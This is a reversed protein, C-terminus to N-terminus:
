SSSHLTKGWDWKKALTCICVMILHSAWRDPALLELPEPFELSMMQTTLVNTKHLHPWLSWADGPELCFPKPSVSYGQTMSRDDWFNWLDGPHSWKVSTQRVLRWPSVWLCTVLLIFFIWHSLHWFTPPPASLRRAGSSCRWITNGSGQTKSCQRSLWSRGAGSGSGRDVHPPLLQQGSEELTVDWSQGTRAGPCQAVPKFWQKRM